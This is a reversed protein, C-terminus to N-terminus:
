SIKSLSGRLFSNHLFYQIFAPLKKIYSTLHLFYQKELSWFNYSLHGKKYIKLIESKTNESVLRQSVEETILSRCLWTGVMQIIKFNSIQGWWWWHHFEMRQYSFIRGFFLLQYGFFRTCKKTSGQFIIVLKQKCSPWIAFCRHLRHICMAMEATPLGIPPPFLSYICICLLGQSLNSSCVIKLVVAVDGFVLNGRWILANAFQLNVDFGVNFGIYWCLLSRHRLLCLM